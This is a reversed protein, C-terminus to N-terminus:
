RPRRCRSTRAARGTHRPWRASHPSPSGAGARARAPSGPLRWSLKREAVLVHVRRHRHERDVVPILLPLAAYAFQPADRAAGDRDQRDVRFRAGPHPQHGVVEGLHRASSWRIRGGISTMAPQSPPVTVASTTSIGRSVGSQVSIDNQAWGSRTSSGTARAEVDPNARIRSSTISRTTVATPSPGSWPRTPRRGPM